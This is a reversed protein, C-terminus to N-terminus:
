EQDKGFCLVQMGRDYGKCQTTPAKRNFKDQKRRSPRDERPDQQRSNKM